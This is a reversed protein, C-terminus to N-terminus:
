AEGQGTAWRAARALIARHGEAGFSTMDHGLGSWVARGPGDRITLVPQPVPQERCSAVALVRADPALNLRGYLEDRVRFPGIGDTVPHGPLPTVTLEDPSPHGSQGWVWAAGLLAGWRDWGDFCIAATHVGLLGGGRAMHAEVAARQAGSPAFAHAARLPAYKEAQTMSFALANVALLDWGEALRDLGPGVDRTECAFGTASLIAALAASTEAFPHYIGGSLILARM